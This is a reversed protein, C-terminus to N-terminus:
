CADVRLLLFSSIQMGTDTFNEDGDDLEVKSVTFHEDEVETLQVMKGIIKSGRIRRLFLISFCCSHFNTSAATPSNKL